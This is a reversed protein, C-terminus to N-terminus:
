ANIERNESYPVASTVIGRVDAEQILVLDDQEFDIYKGFAVLQGPKVDLPQRSGNERRKGPGVAVVEGILAPEQASDPVIIRSQGQSKIRRVLIRDNMPRLNM